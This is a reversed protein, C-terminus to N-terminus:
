AKFFRLERDFFAQAHASFEAEPRTSAEESAGVKDIFQELDVGQLGLREIGVRNIGLPQQPNGNFTTFNRMRGRGSSNMGLMVGIGLESRQHVSSCMGITVGSHLRCGGGVASNSSITVNHAIECDHGVVVHSHFYNDDGIRTKDKAPAQVVSYERFVNNSGIEVRANELSWSRPNIKIDEPPTGILVGRAFWNNDGLVVGSSIVVGPGIYNGTGIQANEHIFSNSSIVNETKRM